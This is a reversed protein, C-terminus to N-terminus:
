PRSSIFFVYVLYVIAEKINMCKVKHETDKCNNFDCYFLNDKYCQNEEQSTNFLRISDIGNVANIIDFVCRNFDYVLNDTNEYYDQWDYKVKNYQEIFDVDYGLSYCSCVLVWLFDSSESLFSDRISDFDKLQKTDAKWYDKRIRKKSVLGSIEGAEEFLSSIASEFRRGYDDSNWQPLKDALEYVSKKYENFKNEM